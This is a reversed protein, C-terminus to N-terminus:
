WAKRLMQGYHVASALVTVLLALLGYGWAADLWYYVALPAILLAAVLAATATPRWADVLRNDSALILWVLFGAYCLASVGSLLAVAFILDGHLGGIVLAGIRAALLVGQFILFQAQKELVSVVQSLPSTVFVLYIWPAMWQAIEGAQRWEAGFVLAFLDPGAILLVFTPPMAIHALKHHISSVLPALDGNRQAESASSFFVDAVAKGLLQMPMALVRHALMYLGAAAPSFLGAFLILPLETGIKHLVGAWSHYVPFRRYRVAAWRVDALRVKRFVLWRRRMALGALSSAGAAHGTAQGLLLAFPGLAYGGLQVGVMGIAQTLKTRAIAPFAKVRIAWYSFVQYIGILLLGIPLLWFYPELAPTNLVTTISEGWAWVIGASIATMGLVVLLSLIVVSAAEEDSEPIPIALEYRLSVAVAFIGLLGAYVALLGFDEPSYLRTLIPSAAVVIIQGAATGGALVSVSRAFRNKPLLRKIREMM